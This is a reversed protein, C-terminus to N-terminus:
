LFKSCDQESKRSWIPGVDGALDSTHQSDLPRVLFQDASNSLIQTNFQIGTCNICGPRECYKTNTRIKLAEASIVLLTHQSWRADFLIKQLARLERAISPLGLIDFVDTAKSTRM